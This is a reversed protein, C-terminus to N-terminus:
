QKPGLFGREAAERFFEARAEDRKFISANAMAEVVTRIPPEGTRILFLLATVAVSEFANATAFIGQDLGTRLDQMLAEQFERALDRWGEREALLLFRGLARAEPLQTQEYRQYASLSLGLETALVQQSKESRRRLERVAENITMRM